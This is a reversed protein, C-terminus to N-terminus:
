TQPVGSKAYSQFFVKPHLSWEGPSLQQRSLFNAQWNEAGLIFVASLFPVHKEAWTLIHDVERQAAQSRSGGQHNICAVATANDSQIRVPCGQLRFTWSILALGAALIELINISLAKETESWKGQVTAEELVAGWGMLSADRTVIKWAVPMFSKGKQLNRAILWWNLSQRVKPSLCMPYDLAQIRNNWASLISNQLLGSHFIPCLSYSRIFGGNERAVEHFPSHLSRKKKEGRVVRVLDRKGRVKTQPLFVKEQVIDIVLGLYELRRVPGLASKELNLIWGLHELYKVMSSVSCDLWTVLHDILLLNDLYAAVSIGQIRLRALVPALIKTFM